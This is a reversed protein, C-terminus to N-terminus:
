GKRYAREFPFRCVQGDNEEIIAKWTEPKEEGEHLHGHFWYDKQVLKAVAQTAGTRFEVYGIDGWLGASPLYLGRISDQNSAEGRYSAVPEKMWFHEHGNIWGVAKPADELIAGMKRGKVRLERAPHHAAVFTPRTRTPLDAALWEQQADNLGGETPGREAGDAAKLSDLLVLDAAGLSVTSVIRGPVPSGNAYEPFVELFTNRRDHNGMGVTVRIGAATLLDIQRRALRYDRVDGNDFCLDGFIVVNRPLPCMELIEAIRRDFEGQTYLWRKMEPNACVHPDALFVSLNEDFDAVGGTFLRCGALEAVAATASATLFDRRTPNATM